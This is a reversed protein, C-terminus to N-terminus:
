MTNWLIHLIIYQLININTCFTLVDSSQNITAIIGVSILIYYPFFRHYMIINYKVDCYCYTTIHYCTLSIGYHTSILTFQDTCFILCYMFILKTSQFLYLYTWNQDQYELDLSLSMLVHGQGCLHQIGISM